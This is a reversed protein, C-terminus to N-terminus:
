LSTLHCRSRHHNQSSETVRTPQDILQTLGHTDCLKSFTKSIPADKRLIDSNWDGMLHMEMGEALVLSEEFLDFFDSQDPPRYIACYLINKAHELKVEVWVTELSSHHLDPRALFKVNNHVYMCVGGGNRNRDNRIVTYNEIEIESDTVSDDLKTESFSLIHAKGDKFMERLQDLKAGSHSLLGNVNLHIAHIGSQAFISNTM